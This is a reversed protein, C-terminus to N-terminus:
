LFPRPPGLPGPSRPNSNTKNLYIYINLDMSVQRSAIADTQKGIPQNRPVSSSRADSRVCRLQWPYDVGLVQAVLQRCCLLLARDLADTVLVDPAHARPEDNTGYRERSKIQPSLLDERLMPVLNQRPTTSRKATSAVVGLDM